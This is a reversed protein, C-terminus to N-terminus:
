FCIPDYDMQVTFMILAQAESNAFIKLWEIPLSLSPFYTYNQLM